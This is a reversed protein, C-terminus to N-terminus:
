YKIQPKRASIVFTSTNNAAATAAAFSAATGPVYNNPNGYPNVTSRNNNPTGYMSSTIQSSIAPNTYPSYNQRVAHNAASVLDAEHIRFARELATQERDFQAYARTTERRILETPSVARPSRIRKSVDYLADGSRVRPSGVINTIATSTPQNNNNRNTSGSRGIEAVRSKQAKTTRLLNSSPNIPKIAAGSIPVYPTHRDFVPPVPNLNQNSAPRIASGSRTRPAPPPPPPPLSNYTGAVSSSTYMGNSGISERRSSGEYNSNNNYTYPSTKPYNYHTPAPVLTPAPEPVSNATGPVELGALLATAAETSGTVRVLEQIEAVIAADLDDSLDPINMDNPLQQEMPPYADSMYELPAEPQYPNYPEQLPQNVPAPVYAQPEVAPLTTPMSPPPPPPVNIGNASSLLAAALMASTAEPSQGTGYAITNMIESFEPTAMLNNLGPVGLNALLATINEDDANSPLPAHENLSELNINDPNFPPLGLMAAIQGLDLENNDPIGNDSMVVEPITEPPAPQSSAVPHPRRSRSRSRSRNPSRGPSFENQESTSFTTPNAKQDAIAQNTTEVV